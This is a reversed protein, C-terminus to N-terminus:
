SKRRIKADRRYSKKRRRELRGKRGEEDLIERRYEFHAKERIFVRVGGYELGGPCLIAVHGEHLHTLLVTEAHDDGGINLCISKSNGQFTVKM